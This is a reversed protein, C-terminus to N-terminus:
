PDATLSSTSDTRMREGLARARGRCTVRSRTNDSCRRCVTLVYTCKLHCEQPVQLLMTPVSVLDADGYKHVPGEVEGGGEGAVAAFGALSVELPCLAALFQSGFVAAINDALRPSRQTGLVTQRAGKNTINTVSFRVDTSILAYGQLVGLLRHYQTRLGRQFEARRVPLNSFLGEV